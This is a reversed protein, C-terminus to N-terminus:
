CICEKFATTVTGSKTEIEEFATFVSPFGDQPNSQKRADGFSKFIWNLRCERTSGCVGGTLSQDTLARARLCLHIDHIIPGTFFFFSVLFFICRTM